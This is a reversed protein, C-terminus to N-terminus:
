CTGPAADLGHLRILDLYMLRTKADADDATLYDFGHKEYFGTANCYADVTVFRCGTKNNDGFLNLISELLASGLKQGQFQHAIALRGIKVAPYSQARKDNPIPRQMRNRTGPVEIESSQIKDNLLSFFGAVTGDVQLLYTVSLLQRQYNAADHAFFDDLDEDGCAFTPAPLDVRM